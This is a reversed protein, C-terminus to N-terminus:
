TAQMWPPPGSAGALKRLASHLAHTTEGPKGNGIIQDDVRVIPVIERLSSTIFVEAARDIDRHEIPGLLVSLSMSRALGVVISRTIGELVSSTKLAGDILAFVSATAASLIRGSDDALLAEDFGRVRAEDRALLRPLYRAYKAHAAERTGYEVDALVCASIGREYDGHRVALPEAFTLRHTAGDALKADPLRPGRIVFARIASDGSVTAAVDGVECAVTDWPVAARLRAWEASHALRQMHETLAFPRGDYARITEFVADGLLIGPAQLPFAAADPVREGDLLCVRVSLSGSAGGGVRQV